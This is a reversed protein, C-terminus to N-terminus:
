GGKLALLLREEPDRLTCNVGYIFRGYGNLVPCINIHNIKIAFGIFDYEATFDV